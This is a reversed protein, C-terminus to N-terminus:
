FSYLNCLRVCHSDVGGTKIMTDVYGKTAVDYTNQPTYGPSMQRTGDITLSVPSTNDRVQSEKTQHPNNTNLAHNDVYEKTAVSKSGTPVYSASM